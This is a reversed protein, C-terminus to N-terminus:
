GGARDVAAALRQEADGATLDLVVESVRGAPASGALDALRDARRGVAIVHAGGALAREAILRGFGSSAGTILWTSPM